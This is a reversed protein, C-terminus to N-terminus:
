RARRKGIAIGVLGMGLLVLSTPEPGSIVGNARFAWEEFGSNSEWAGTPKGFQSYFTVYAAGNTGLVANPVYLLMDGSGSGHNRGADMNIVDVASGNGSMRFTENSGTFGGMIAAQNTGPTNSLAVNLPAPNTSLFIQVQNLSLLPDTKSLDENIDLFFERYIAGVTCGVAAGRLTGGAGCTVKPVNDAVVSHTWIGVKDNQMANTDANTVAAGNPIDTNYGQEKTGQNGPNQVRLFPDIYGTGTPQSDSFVSFYGGGIVATAGGSNGNILDITEAFVSQVSFLMLAITVTM